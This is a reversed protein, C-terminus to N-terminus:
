GRGECIVTAGGRLYPAMDDAIQQLCATSMHPPLPIWLAFGEWQAALNAFFAYPALGSSRRQVGAVDGVAPLGHQNGVHNRRVADQADGVHRQGFVGAAYVTGASDSGFSILGNAALSQSQSFTVSASGNAVSATGLLPTAMPMEFTALPQWLQQQGTVSLFAGSSIVFTTPGTVVVMSSGNQTNVSACLTATATTSTTGLYAPTIHFM